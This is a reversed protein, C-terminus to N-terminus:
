ESKLGPKEEDTVEEPSATASTEDKRAESIKAKLAQNEKELAKIKKRRNFSSRIGILMGILIGILLSAYVLGYLPLYISHLNFYYHLQVPESNKIGFTVLVLLIIILFISKLYNGM